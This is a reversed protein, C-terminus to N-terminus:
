GQQALEFQSTQVDWHAIEFYGGTTDAGAHLSPSFRFSALPTTIVKGSELYSKIAPGTTAGSRLAAALVEVNAYGVVEPVTPPKGFKSTWAQM